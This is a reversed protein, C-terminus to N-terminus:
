RAPLASSEARYGGVELAESSVPQEECRDAIGVLFAKFAPLRPLPNDEVSVTSVTALHVFSRGDALELAQYDLGAPKAEALAAFVERILAKHEEVREAKVKYRVVVRRM